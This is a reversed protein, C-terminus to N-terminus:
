ISIHILGYWLSVADPLNDLFRGPEQALDVSSIFFIGIVSPGVLMLLYHHLLGTIETGDDKISVVAHSVILQYYKCCSYCGNDITTSCLWNVAIISVEESRQPYFPRELM